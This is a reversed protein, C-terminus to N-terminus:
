PQRTTVTSPDPPVLLELHVLGDDEGGLRQLAFGHRELLRLSAANRRDVVATLRLLGLELRAAAILASVAESAYGAGQYRRSLVYGIEAESGSTRKLLAEGIVRQDAAHVIALVLRGGDRAIVQSLKVNLAALTSSRDRVPWPIYRAVKADGHFLQLDDLDSPTHARLVLRPTSLEGALMWVGSTVTFM